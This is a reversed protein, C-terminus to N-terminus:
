PIFYHLEGDKRVAYIEDKLIMKDLIEKGKKKVYKKFAPNEIKELIRNILADGTYAKEMNLNLYNLIKKKTAIYLYNSNSKSKDIILLSLFGGISIILLILGVEFIIQITGIFSSVGIISWIFYWKIDVGETILKRPKEGFL